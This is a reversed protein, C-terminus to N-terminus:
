EPAKDVVLMKVPMNTPVLELGLQDLVAQKVKDPDLNRKSGGLELDVKYGRKLGTQDIVPINLCGELFAALERLSANTWSRERGSFKISGGANPSLGSPKLGSANPREVTLLLVPTDRVETTVVVGFKDKIAQQLAKASGRPLSAIFDYRDQPLETSLVMRAPIQGELYPGYNLYMINPDYAFDLIASLPVDIGGIKRTGRGGVRIRGGNGPVFKTPLITVLPPAMDLTDRDQTLKQVQWQYDGAQATAAAGHDDIAMVAVTATGAALLVAIGAVIATKAKAWAMLKLTGKIITSTSTGVAAGKALAATSISAGLGAPAAQISNASVAGAIAATTLVVGRKTFFKRMKELARNIRMRATDEHAGIAAGVQKLDRGEFFRLVVATRDREGLEAMAPELLPAIHTWANSDPENLVSQMFAEQERRQRRRQTKLADASAFQATRYLWASLITGPGLSAAKRALIVFVAQTVEQALHPDRVQRLAVSYVLNLHRSVLTEFARESQRTAYDRVLDMDDTMM